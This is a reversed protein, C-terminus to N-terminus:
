FSKRLFDAVAKLEKLERTDKISSLNIEINAVCGKLGAKVLGLAVELDSVAGPNSNGVLMTSLEFVRRCREGNRAPVRAAAIFGKEIRANREYKEAASNKPLAYAEKVLAFAEVDEGAGMLLEQRLNDAEAAIESYRGSPLGYDKKLSLKAVMAALAAAMAGALAAASGGGTTFDESDLVKKYAENEM